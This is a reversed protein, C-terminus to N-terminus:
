REVGGVDSPPDFPSPPPPPPPPGFPPAPRPSPPPPPSPPRVPRSLVDSQGSPIGPPLVEPPIAVGRFGATLGLLLRVGDRGLVWAWVPVLAIAGWVGANALVNLFATWRDTWVIPSVVAFVCLAPRVLAIATNAWVYVRDATPQTAAMFRAFEEARAAEARAEMELLLRKAEMEQEPDRVVGLGQLVRLLPEIWWPM